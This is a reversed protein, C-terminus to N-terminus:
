ATPNEVRILNVSKMMCVHVPPLCTAAGPLKPMRLCELSANATVGIAAEEIASRESAAPKLFAGLLM